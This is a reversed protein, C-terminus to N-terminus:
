RYRNNIMNLKTFVSKKLYITYKLRRIYSGSFKRSSKLM